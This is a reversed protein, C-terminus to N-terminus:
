LKPGAMEQPNQDESTELLRVLMQGRPDRKAYDLASLGALIDTRKPDAGKSMLLRVMAPNHRQVALILPTEGRKNGSNVDAKAALLAEAGDVWGLQAALTLPTNGDKDEIDTRVGFSLIYRLWQLDRDRVLSHLATNGSGDKTNIIISGTTLFDRAAAADREKIATHFKSRESTQAATPAAALSLLAATGIAIGLNKLVKDV